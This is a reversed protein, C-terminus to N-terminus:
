MLHSNLCLCLPCPFEEVDSSWVMFSVFLFFIGCFCSIIRSCCQPDWQNTAMHPPPVLQLSYTSSPPIPSINPLWVLLPPNHVLCPTHYISHHQLVSINQPHACMQLLGRLFHTERKPLRLNMHLGSTQGGTHICLSDLPPSRRPNGALFILSSLCVCVCVCREGGFFKYVTHEM